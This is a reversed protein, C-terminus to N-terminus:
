LQIVILCSWRVEDLGVLLTDIELSVRVRVRLVEDFEVLLTNSLKDMDVNELTNRGLDANLTELKLLSSWM